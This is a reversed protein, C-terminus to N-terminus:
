PATDTTQWDYFTCSGSPQFDDADAQLRTADNLQCSMSGESQWLNFSHCRPEAWCALACDADATVPLIKIDHNSLCTREYSGNLAPPMSFSVRPSARMECVLYKSFDCPLDALKGDHIGSLRLCKERLSSLGNDAWNTFSQGGEDGPCELRDADNYPDKCGIWIGVSEEERDMERWVFDQEEQSGPVMMGTGPRDCVRFGQDWTMANPLLIYCSDQWAAWGPPCRCPRSCPCPRPWPCSRPCTCSSGAATIGAGLLLFFVLLRLVAM